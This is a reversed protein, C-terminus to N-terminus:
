EEEISNKLLSRICICGNKKRITEDPLPKEGAKVNDAEHLPNSTAPIVCTVAPHALIFKLFFQSWNEIDYEDAWSPM